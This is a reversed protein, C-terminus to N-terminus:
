FVHHRGKPYVQTLEGMVQAVAFLRSGMFQNTKHRTWDPLGAFANSVLLFLIMIMRVYAITSHDVEHQDHDNDAYLMVYIIMIIILKPALM